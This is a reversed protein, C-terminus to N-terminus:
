SDGGLGLEKMLRERGADDSLLGELLKRFGRRSSMPGKLATLADRLELLRKLEPVQAVIGEPEFDRMSKFELKVGLEANAEGSLKDPVNMAVALKHEKLVETFNDKDINIAKREELQRDDPRGTYDGIALVKLPLEKEEQANGTAAKYTINVREKPAVSQDKAM